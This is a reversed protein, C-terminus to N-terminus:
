TLNKRDRRLCVGQEPKGLLPPFFIAQNLTKVNQSFKLQLHYGRIWEPRTFTGAKKNTLKKYECVQELSIVANFLFMM